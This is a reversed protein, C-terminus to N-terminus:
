PCGKWPSRGLGSRLGLSLNLGFVLSWFLRGSCDCGSVGGVVLASVAHGPPPLAGEPLYLLKWRLRRRRLGDPHLPGQRAGAGPGCASLPPKDGGRTGVPGWFWGLPFVCAPLHPVVVRETIIQGM